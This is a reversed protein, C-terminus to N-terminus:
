LAQAFQILMHIYYATLENLNLTYTSSKKGSISFLLCVLLGFFFFVGLFRFFACLKCTGEMGQRIKLDNRRM